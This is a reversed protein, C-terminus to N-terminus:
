KEIYSLLQAEYLFILNIILLLVSININLDDLLSGAITFYHM